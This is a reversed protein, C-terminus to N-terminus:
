LCRVATVDGETNVVPMNFIESLPVFTKRQVPVFSMNVVLLWLM